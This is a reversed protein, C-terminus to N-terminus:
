EEKEELEESKKDNDKLYRNELDNVQKEIVGKAYYAVGFIAGAYLLAQGLIWLISDHVEGMPAVFFGITTLTIGFCLMVIASIVAINDKKEKTM